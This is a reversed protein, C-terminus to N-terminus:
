RRGGAIQVAEPLTRLRLMSVVGLAPGPALAMFAYQWGVQNVLIPILEISLITLLFGLCTQITLATGIYQPNALETVCTL